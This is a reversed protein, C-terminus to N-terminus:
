HPHLLKKPYKYKPWVNRKRHKHFTKQWIHAHYPPETTIIGTKSIKLGIPDWNPPDSRM